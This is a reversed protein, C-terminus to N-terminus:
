YIRVLRPGFTDVFEMLSRFTEGKMTGNMIYEIISDVEDQYSSIETLLDPDLNCELDRPLTYELGYESSSVSTHVTSCSFFLLVFVLRVTSSNFRM